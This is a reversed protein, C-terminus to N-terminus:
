HAGKDLVLWHWGTILKQGGRDGRAGNWIAFAVPIRRPTSLDIDNSDNTQIPRFLTVSWRGNAYIATANAHQHTAEQYLLTGFGEANAELVAHTFLAPDAKPNHTAAAPRTLEGLIRLEQDYEAGTPSVPVPEKAPVQGLPFEQRNANEMQRPHTSDHLVGTSADFQRAAKWQWVNVPSAPTHGAVQVGMPIAPVSDGMAFMVAAADPFVNLDVDLDPSADEWALHIALMSGVRAAAVELGRIPEDRDWTPRLSVRTHEVSQWGMQKPDTTLEANAIVGPRFEAGSAVFPLVAPPALSQVYTVLAWAKDDSTTGDRRKEILQTGYSPMPTGPVGNVIARYIDEPKNGSKFQGSALNAPHIPRGISDKLTAMSPGDGHGKDGHCAVCGTSVYLAAGTAKLGETYEPMPSPKEALSERRWEANAKDALGKTYAAVGAIEADTLTGQFGPMSSRPIGERITRTIAALVKESTAGTAAFRLPSERFARPKPYLQEAAPGDGNGDPGHCAACHKIFLEAALEKPMGGTSATKVVPAAAAPPKAEKCGGATCAILAILGPTLARYGTHTVM